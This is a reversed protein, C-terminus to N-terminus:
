EEPKQGWHLSCLRYILPHLIM